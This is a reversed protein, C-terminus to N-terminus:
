WGSPTSAPSSCRSCAWRTAAWSCPATASATPSRRSCYRTRRGSAPL